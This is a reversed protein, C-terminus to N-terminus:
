NFVLGGLGSVIRLINYSNNYIGLRINIQQINDNKCLLGNSNDIHYNVLKNIEENFIIRFELQGTRSLNCTGSPQQLEPQLAFSYVYIGDYNNQTHCEYKKLLSFVKEGHIRERVRGSYLIEIEKIYPIYKKTILYKKDDNYYGIIEGLNNKNFGTHKIIKIDRKILNNVSNFEIINENSYRRDNFSIEEVTVETLFMYNECIENKIIDKLIMNNIDNNVIDNLNDNYEYNININDYNLKSYLQAIIFIEKSSNSFNVPILYDNSILENNILNDILNENSIDVIINDYFQPQEILMDHLQTAYELKYKHEIYFYKCLLLDQVKPYILLLKGNKDYNILNELNNYEINIKIESHQLCFLPLASNYFKSLNFPIPIILENDVYDDYFTNICNNMCDSINNNLILKNYGRLKNKDNRINSLIHIYEGNLSEIVQDNIILDISKILKHGIYNNWKCDLLDKGLYKMLKRINEELVSYDDLGYKGKDDEVLGYWGILDLINDINIIKNTYYDIINNSLINVNDDFYGDLNTIDKFETHLILYYLLFKIFDSEYKFANFYSNIISQYKNYLNFPNLGGNNFEYFINYITNILEILRDKNDVLYDDVNYKNYWKILNIEKDNISNIGNNLIEKFYMIASIDLKSIGISDRYNLENLYINNIIYTQYWNYLKQQTVANYPNNIINNIPNVHENILIDFCSIINNDYNMNMFSYNNNYEKMILHNIVNLIDDWLKRYAYEYVDSDITYVLSIADDDNISEKLLKRFLDVNIFSNVNNYIFTHFDIFLKISQKYKDNIFDDEFNSLINLIDIYKMANNYNKITKDLICNCYKISYDHINNMYYIFDITNDVQNKLEIFLNSNYINDCIYDKCEKFPNFLSDIYETNLINNVFKNFNIKIMNLLYDCWSSFVDLLRHQKYLKTEDSEFLEPIENSFKYLYSIGNNNAGTKLYSDCIIKIKPIYHKLEPLNNYIFYSLNYKYTLVVFEIPNLSDHYFDNTNEYNNILDNPKVYNLSYYPVKILYFLLHIMQLKISSQNLYKNISNYLNDILDNSITIFSLTNNQKYIDDCNMLSKTIYENLLNIYKMIKENNDETINDNVKFLMEFDNNLMSQISNHIILDGIYINSQQGNTYINHTLHNLIEFINIFGNNEINNNHKDTSIRYYFKNLSYFSYINDNNNNDLSEIISEDTPVAFKDQTFHLLKDNIDTFEQLDCYKILFNEIFDEINNDYLKKYDTILNNKFINTYEIIKNYLETQIFLKENNYNIYGDYNLLPIIINDYLYIETDDYSYTNIVENINFYQIADYNNNIKYSLLYDFMFANNNKLNNIDYNFVIKNIFEKFLYVNFMFETTISNYIEDYLKNKFSEVDDYSAVINNMSSNNNTTNIYCNNYIYSLNDILYYGKSVIEDNTNESLYINFMNNFYQVYSYNNIYDSVNYLNIFKFLLFRINSDDGFQKIIYHKISTILRSINNILVKNTWKGDIFTYYNLSDDNNKIVIGDNEKPHYTNYKVGTYTIIDNNMLYINFDINYLKNENSSIKYVSNDITNFLYSDFDTFEILNETDLPQITPLYDLSKMIFIYRKLDITPEVLVFVDNDNINVEILKNEDEILDNYYYYKKNFVDIFGYLVNLNDDLKTDLRYTDSVTIIYGNFENFEKKIEIWFYYTNTIYYLKNDVSKKNLLNYDNLLLNVGNEDTNVWETGTYRLKINTNEILCNNYKSKFIIIDNKNFSVISPISLDNITTNKLNLINNNTLNYILYDDIPQISINENLNIIYILFKYASEYDYYFWKDNTTVDDEIWENKDDYILKSINNKDESMYQIIYTMNNSVNVNEIRDVFNTRNLKYVNGSINNIFYSNNRYKGKQIFQKNINIYTLYLINNINIMNNCNKLEDDLYDIEYYTNNIINYCGIKNYNEYGFYIINDIVYMCLCNMNKNTYEIDEYVDININYKGFYSANKFGFYIYDNNNCLTSCNKTSTIDDFYYKIQYINYTSLPNYIIFFTTNDFSLYLQNKSLIIDTCDINQSYINLKTHVNFKIKGENFSVNFRMIFNSNTFGFLLYNFTNESGFNINNISNIATCNYIDDFDCEIYKENNELTTTENLDYVGFKNSNKFGFIIYDYKVISSVYYTFQYIKNCEKNENFSIKIFENPRYPINDLSLPLYKVFYDANNFSLYLENNYKIISSCQKFENFSNQMLDFKPIIESIYNQNYNSVYLRGNNSITICNHLNNNISFESYELSSCNLLGINNTNNFIFYINNSFDFTLCICNRNLKDPYYYKSYSKKSYAYTLFYNKDKLTIVIDNNLNTIMYTITEIDDFTYKIFEKTNDYYVYFFNTNEFGIYLNNYIDVTMASCKLTENNPYNITILEKSDERYVMFLNANLGIFIEKNTGATMINCEYYLPLEENSSYYIVEYDNTNNNLKIFYSKYNFGLYMFENGYDDKYGGKTITNCYSVDKSFTLSNLFVGANTDVVYIKNSISGIYLKNTTSYKISLINIQSLEANNINNVIMNNHYSSIFSQPEYYLIKDNNKIWKGKNYEYFDYYYQKNISELQENIFYYKNTTLIHKDVLPDLPNFTAPNFKYLILQNGKYWLNFIENTNQLLYTDNYNIYINWGNNYNYILFENQNIEISKNDQIDDSKNVFYYDNNNPKNINIYSNNLSEELYVTIIYDNYEYNKNIIRYIIYTNTPIKIIEYSYTEIDPDYDTIEIISKNNMCLLKSNNYKYTTLAEYVINDTANILNIIWYYKNTSDLKYKEENIYEYLGENSKDFTHYYYLYTYKNFNYDVEDVDPLKYYYSELEDNNNMSYVYKPIIDLVQYYIEYNNFSIIYLKNKYICGYFVKNEINNNNFPKNIIVIHNDLQNITNNSFIYKQEYELDIIDYMTIINILKNIYLIENDFNYLFTPENMLMVCKIDYIFIKKLTILSDSDLVCVNKYNNTNIFLKFGDYCNIGQLNKFLNFSLINKNHLTDYEILNFLNNNINLKYILETQKDIISFNNLYKMLNNDYYNLDILYHYIYYFSSYNDYIICNKSLNILQIENNKNHIIITNNIYYTIYFGSISKINTLNFKNDISIIYNFTTDILDNIIDYNCLCIINNYNNFVIDTIDVYNNNIDIDIIINYKNNFWIYYNDNYKGIDNSITKYISNINTIDEDYSEDSKFVYYIRNNYIYYKIDDTRETYINNVFKVTLDCVYDCIYIPLINYNEDYPILQKNNNDLIPILFENDYYINYNNLKNTQNSQNTYLEISQKNNQYVVNYLNDNINIITNDEIPILYNFQENIYYFLNNTYNNNQNYMCCYLSNNLLYTNNTTDNINTIDNDITNIICDINDNNKNLHISDLVFKNNKNNTTIIHKNNSNILSLNYSNINYSLLNYLITIKNNEGSNILINNENITTFIASSANLRNFDTPIPQLCELINLEETIYYTHQFIQKTNNDKNYGNYLIIINNNILIDIYTLTEHLSYYNITDDEIIIPILKIETQTIENIIYFYIRTNIYNHTNEELENGVIILINATKETNDNSIYKFSQIIKINAIHKINDISTINYVNLTYKKNNDNGFYPVFKNIDYDIICASISASDTYGNAYFICLKNIDNDSVTYSYIFVDFVIKKNLNTYPIVLQNAINKNLNKINGSTFPNTIMYIDIYDNITSQLSTIGGIFIMYIADNFIITKGNIDGRSNNLSLDSNTISNTSNTVENHEPDISYVEILNTSKNNENYGGAIIAIDKYYLNSTKYRPSFTLTSNQNYKEFIQSNENYLYIYLKDNITNNLTDNIGNTLILYNNIVFCTSYNINNNLILNDVNINIFNDVKYKIDYYNYNILENSFNYISNDNKYPYNLTLYSINNNTNYLNLTNNHKNNQIEILWKNNTFKYVKDTLKDNINYINILDNIKQYTNDILEYLECLEINNVKIISAITKYIPISQKNLKTINNTIISEASNYETKILYTSINKITYLQKSIVQTNLYSMNNWSNTLKNYENIYFINHTKPYSTFLIRFIPPYQYILSQTQAQKITINDLTILIDNQLKDIFQLSTYNEITNNNNNNTNSTNDFLVDYEKYLSSFILASQNYTFKYINPKYQNNDPNIIITYEKKNNYEPANDFTIEKREINQNLIEYYILKNQKLSENKILIKYTHNPQLNIINNLQPNISQNLQQNIQQSLQQNNSSNISQNLQLNTLSNIQQSLQQNNSSNISQNLQPNIPSNIQFNIQQSLQHNIEQNIQPNIIIDDQLNNKRINNNNGNNNENNENYNNLFNPNHCYIYPRIVFNNNELQLLVLGNTFLEASKINNDNNNIIIQPINNNIIYQTPQEYKDNEFIIEYKAYNDNNLIINIDGYNDQITYTTIKHKDEDDYVNYEGLIIDDVIYDFILGTCDVDLYNDITNINNVVYNDSFAVNNIYSLFNTNYNNNFSILGNANDDVIYNVFNDVRYPLFYHYYNDVILNINDNLIGYTYKNVVGYIPYHIYDYVKDNIYNTKDVIFNKFFGNIQKIDGEVNLRWTKGDYSIYKSNDPNYVTWTNNNIYFLKLNYNSFKNLIYFFKYNDLTILENNKFIYAGTNINNTNNILIIDDELMSSEITYIKNNIQIYINDNLLINTDNNDIYEFIYMGNDINFKELNFSNAKLKYIGDYNVNRYVDNKIQIINKYDFVDNNKENNPNILINDYLYIYYDKTIENNNQILYLKNDKIKFLAWTENFNYDSIETITSNIENKIYYIYNNRFTESKLNYTFIVNDLKSLDVLELETNYKYIKNIIINIVQLSTETDNSNENILINIDDNNVYYFLKNLTYKDITIISNNINITYFSNNIYYLQIPSFLYFTIIDRTPKNSLTDYINYDNIMLYIDFLINDNETYGSFTYQFYAIIDDNNILEYKTINDDTIKKYLANTNKIFIIFGDNPIYENWGIYQLLNLENNYDSYLIVQHDIPNTPYETYITNTIFYTERNNIYQSYVAWKLVDDIYKFVQCNLSNIEKVVCLYDNNVEIETWQLIYVTYEDNDKAFILISNIDYPNIIQENLQEFILTKADYTIDDVWKIDYWNNEFTNKWKPSIYQFIQYNNNDKEKIFSIFYNDPQYTIWKCSKISYNGDDNYFIKINTDSPYDTLIDDFYNYNVNLTLENLSYNSSEDQENKFIRILNNNNNYICIFNNIQSNDWYNICYLDYYNTDFTDQLLAYIYKDTIDEPDPLPKISDCIYNSLTFSIPRHTIEVYQQSNDRYKGEDDPNPGGLLSVTPENYLDLRHDKYYMFYHIPNHNNQIRKYQKVGNVLTEDNYKYLIYMYYENNGTNSRIHYQKLIYNHRNNDDYTIIDDIHIDNETPHIIEDIEIEDLICCDNAMLKYKNNDNKYYLDLKPNDPDVPDDPNDPNTILICYDTNGHITWNPIFKYLFYKDDKNYIIKNNTNNPLETYITDTIMYDDNITKKTWNNNNYEFLKNGNIIYSLYNNSIIDDTWTFLKIYYNTNDENTNDVYFIKTDSSVDEPFTTYIKDFFLYNNNTLIWKTENNIKEGIFIKDSNVLFLLYIDNNEINFKTETYQELVYNSNDRKFIIDNLLKDEPETDYIKDVFIYENNNKEVWKNLQQEYIINKYIILYSSITEYNNWGGGYQMLKYNDETNYYFIIADKDPNSPYTNYIDDQILYDNEILKCTMTNQNFIYKYENEKNNTINTIHITVIIIDYSNENIKPEIKISTKVNYLGDIIVETDKISLNFRRRLLTQHDKDYPINYPLYYPFISQLGLNNNIETTEDFYYMKKFNYLNKNNIFMGFGSSYDDINCYSKLFNIPMNEFPKNIQAITGIQPETIFNSLNNNIIHDTIWTSKSDFINVENNQNIYPSDSAIIYKKNDEIKNNLVNIFKEIIPISDISYSSIEQEDLIYAWLYEYIPSLYRDDDKEYMNFLNLFLEKKYENIDTTTINKSNELINNYLEKKKLLENIYDSILGPENRTTEDFTGVIEIFDEEQLLDSPQKSSPISYNIGYKNLYDKMQQYTWQNYKNYIKPLHVILYINSLFDGIKPIIVSIHQINQKLSPIIIEKEEESFNVYRRFLNHFFTINANKTLYSSEIDSNNVLLENFTGRSM